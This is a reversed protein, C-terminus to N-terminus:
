DCYKKGFIRGRIRANTQVKEDWVVAVKSNGVAVDSRAGYAVTSAPHDVPAGAIDLFQMEKCQDDFRLLQVSGSTAWTKSVFSVARESGLAIMGGTRGGDAVWTSPKPGCDFSGDLKLQAFEPVSDGGAWAGSLKGGTSLLVPSYYESPSAGVGTGKNIVLNNTVDLLRLGTAMTAATPSVAQLIAIQSGVIAVDHGWVRPQTDVFNIGSEGLGSPVGSGDIRRAYPADGAPLIDTRHRKWVVVYGGAEAQIRPQADPEVATTSLQVSSTTPKGNTDFHRFFVHRAGVIEGVFTVGFGKADAAIDAATAEYHINSVRFNSVLPKETTDFMSFLVHFPDTFDTWVVGLKDGSWAAQPRVADASKPSAIDFPIGSLSTAFDELDTFGNCDNDVGDCAETAGPHVDSRSDDCDDGPAAKCYPSGHGDGDADIAMEDSCKAKGGENSCTVVCDVPDAPACPSTGPTCKGADTDCTETGTCPDGDDCDTNKICEPTPASDAADTGGEAAAEAGADGATGPAPEFESSCASTCVAVGILTTWLFERRISAM